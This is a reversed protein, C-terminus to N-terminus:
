NRRDARVLKGEPDTYCDVTFQQEGGDKAMEGVVIKEIFFGNNTKHVEGYDVIRMFDPTTGLALSNSNCTERAQWRDNAVFYDLAHRVGPFEESIIFLFFAVVFGVPIFRGARSKRQRPKQPDQPAQPEQHRSVKGDRRM